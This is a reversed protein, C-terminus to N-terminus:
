VMLALMWAIRAKAPSLAIPRCLGDDPQVVAQGWVCRSACAIEAGQHRAEQLAARLAQHVTGSGTAAIVWGRPAPNLAMLARVERGDAGAHSYVLRVEPWDRGDGLDALAPAPWREPTSTDSRIQWGASDIRALPGSPGSSFADISDSLVKQVADAAHVQGAAVLVVQPPVHTLAVSSRVWDIADRLNGPGDANPANAPRMACTLAIPKSPSLVSQLFFVTEEATDTGHTIVLGAVEPRALHVACRQALTAWLAHTMDKSDVQAVQEAELAWGSADSEWDLDRLLDSVPLVAATYHRQMPQAALGAITGGTALVVIKQSNKPAM